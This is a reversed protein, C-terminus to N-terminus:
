VVGGVPAVAKTIPAGLGKPEREARFRQPRKETGLALLNLAGERPYGNRQELGEGFLLSCLMRERSESRSGKSADSAIVRRIREM